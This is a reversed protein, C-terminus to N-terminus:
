IKKKLKCKPSLHTKEKQNHNGVGGGWVGQKGGGWIESAVLVGFEAM